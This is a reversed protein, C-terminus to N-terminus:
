FMKRIEFEVFRGRPDILFPQYRLPVNGDADTVTRRSDFVNDLRLSLRTGKLFPVAAVLKERQGLDAFLRVDFTALSGFRLDTSGPLGTGDVRSTGSYNGSLRLGFGNRFVGGELTASHRTVGGGSLADGDLLDLLPGGQAVLVQNDFEITHFANLFWRGRGDGGGGFRGGRGAGRGGGGRASRTQEPAPPPPASAAKQADSSQHSQAAPPTPATAAASASEAAPRRRGSRGPGGGPEGNSAESESAKGFAGSLNLGYRIRSSRTQAFTVPRQDISVIQGDADRTVRDPFAAEIAPTLLPFSNTVNDSRNRFYEVILRSDDIIPLEWNASLKIDRQQEATLFPNGGSITQVLVTQNTTFDFVPVNLRTIQPNGLQSLSPPAESTIYTAALSLRETPSWNLGVTYDFLTGFASLKQLGGTLSLSLDGIGALFDERRSTLPIGLTVTGDVRNRVLGVDPGTDLTNTSNLTNRKYRLSVTTTVEGAPLVLPRGTLTAQTELSLGNSRALDAGAYPAVLGPQDIALTGAAAAAQLGSVDARRDSRTESEFRSGDATLSLNWDGLPKNLASGASITITRSREEIPDNANVVRLASAGDFTLLALDYGDFDQNDTREIEGNFSLTGGNEGLGTAYNGNLKYDNQRDILTRFAAPDPDIAFTPIQGATEIIGGQRDYLPSTHDYEFAINARKDGNISLLSAEIEQTAYGGRTPVGYDGELRKSAFNDKLIFNVVRQDASYGFRLAVEEPLVEVRRIAEPPYNRLERFSSIRQGNVLFVPGGSGRGRGSTTLPALADVLDQLSAAGYSAIEAEDLVAIPPQPADVQGRIRQATVVIETQGGADEEVQGAGSDPIPQAAALAAEQAHGPASLVLGIATAPLFFRM